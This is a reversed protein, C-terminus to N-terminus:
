KKMSTGAYMTHHSKRNTIQAATFEKHAWFGRHVNLGQGGGSGATTGGQKSLLASGAQGKVWKYAHAHTHTHLSSVSITNDKLERCTIPGISM